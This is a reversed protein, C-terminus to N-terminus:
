GRKMPWSGQLKRLLVIQGTHYADHMMWDALDNYVPLSRLEAESITDLLKAIENAIRHTRKLTDSWGATDEAHGPEGFTEENTINSENSKGHLGLLILENWYNIHNVIQWITNGGQPPNWAADTAGLGELSLSLPVFWGEKDWSYTRQKKYIDLSSVM